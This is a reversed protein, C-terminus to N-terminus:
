GLRDLLDRHEQWLAEPLHAGFREFHEPILGAERRWTERDVGLLEALRGADLDLGDLDLDAPEPVVGIPTSVGGAAGDLRDVIWKLVRSNEGFGPWLFKGNEDM